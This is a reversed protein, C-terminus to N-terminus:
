GRRLANAEAELPPNIRFKGGEEENVLGYFECALCTTRKAAFTGQVQGGCLTGAVSWCIRGAMHGHNGGECAADTAAPCTGLEAEKSGGPERGCGKVEWCDNPM